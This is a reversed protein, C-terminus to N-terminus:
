WPDFLWGRLVTDMVPFAKLHKYTREKREKTSNTRYISFDLLSLAMPVEATARALTDRLIDLYKVIVKFHTRGKKQCLILM